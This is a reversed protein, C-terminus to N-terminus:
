PEWVHPGGGKWKILDSAAIEDEEGIHLGARHLFVIMDWLGYARGVAQYHIHVLRGGDHDPPDVTVSPVSTM